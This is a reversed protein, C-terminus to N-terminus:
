QIDIGAYEYGADTVATKVAGEDLPMSHKVVVKGTNHDSIAEVIGDIGELAKKVHKECNGCMMGNVM